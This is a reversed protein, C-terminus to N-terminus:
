VIRRLLNNKLPVNGQMRIYDEERVKMGDVEIMDGWQDGYTFRKNRERERRYDSLGEWCDMARELLEVNREWRRTSCESVENGSRKRNNKMSM